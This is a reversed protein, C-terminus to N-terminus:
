LDPLLDVPFQAATLGMEVGHRQNGIVVHPQHDLLLADVHGHRQQTTLPSRSASTSPSFLVVGARFLQGEDGLGCAVVPNEQTRDLVSRRGPRIADGKAREVSWCRLITNPLVRPSQRLLRLGQSGLALVSLCQREFLM